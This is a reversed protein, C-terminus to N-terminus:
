QHYKKPNRCKQFFSAPWQRPWIGRDAFRFSEPSNESFNCYRMNQDPRHDDRWRNHPREPMRIGQRNEGRAKNETPQQNFCFRKDSYRQEM